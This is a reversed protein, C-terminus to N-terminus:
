YNGNIRVPGTFAPSYSGYCAGTMPANCTAALPGLPLGSSATIIGSIQWDSVLARVVANGKGLSHGVGLPLRYVFTLNMVHRQDVSGVAKELRNNYGTRGNAIDDIEKAFTYGFNLILGASMRKSLTAQFSNY